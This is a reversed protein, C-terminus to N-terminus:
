DTSAAQRRGTDIANRHREQEQCISQTLPNRRTRCAIDHMRCTGTTQMHLSTWLPKCIGQGSDGHNVFAKDQIQLLNLASLTSCSIRQLLTLAFLTSCSTQPTFSCLADLQPEGKCSTITASTDAPDRCHSGNSVDPVFSIRMSVPSFEATYIIAEAM